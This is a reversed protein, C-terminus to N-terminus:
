SLICLLWALLSCTHKTTMLLVNSQCDLSLDLECLSCVSLCPVRQVSLSKLEIIDSREASLSAAVTLAMCTM